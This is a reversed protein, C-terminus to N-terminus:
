VTNYVPATEIKTDLKTALYNLSSYCSRVASFNKIELPINAGIEM